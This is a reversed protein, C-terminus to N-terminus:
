VLTDDAGVVAPGGRLAGGGIGTEPTGDKGVLVSAGAGGSAGDRAAQEVVRGGLEERGAEVAAVEERIEAAAPDAPHGRRGVAAGHDVEGAADARRHVQLEAGVAGEVV